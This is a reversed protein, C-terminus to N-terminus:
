AKSSPPLRMQVQGRWVYGEKLEEVITGEPRSPDVVVESARHWNPDFGGDLNEIRIVGHESLPKELLRRVTRFNGIWTKMQTTIQDEKANINRFVREFADLVEILDLFLKRTTELQQAESQRLAFRAASVQGMLSRIDDEVATFSGAMQHTEAVNHRM